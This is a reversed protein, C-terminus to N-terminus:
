ELLSESEEVRTTENLSSIGSSNRNEYSYDTNGDKHYELFSSTSLEKDFCGISSDIVSDESDEGENVNTEIQFSDNLNTVVQSRSRNTTDSEGDDTSENESEDRLENLNNELSESDLNLKGITEKASEIRDEHGFFTIPNENLLYKLNKPIILKENGVGFISIRNGPKVLESTLSVLSDQLSGKMNTSLKSQVCVINSLSFYLGHQQNESFGYSTSYPKEIKFTVLLTKMESYSLKLLVSLEALINFPSLVLCAVEGNILVKDLAQMFIEMLVNEEYSCIVLSTNDLSGQELKILMDQTSKYKVYMIKDTSHPFVSQDLQKLYKMLCKYDYNASGKINISAQSFKLLESDAVQSGYKSSIESFDRAKTINCCMKKLKSLTISAKLKTKFEKLQLEQNIVGKLGDELDQKSVLSMLRIYELGLNYKLRSRIENESPMLGKVEYLSIKEIFELILKPDCKNAVKLITEIQHKQFTNFSSLLQRSNKDSQIQDNSYLRNEVCLRLWDQNSLKTKYSETAYQHKTAIYNELPFDEEGEKFKYISVLVRDGIYKPGSKSREILQLAAISDKSSLAKVRVKDMNKKVDFEITAMHAPIYVAVNIVVKSPELQIRFEKELFTVNDTDVNDVDILSIDMWTFGLWANEAKVEFSDKEKLTKERRNAKFKKAERCSDTDDNNTTITSSSNKRKVHKPTEENGKEHNLAISGIKTMWNRSSEAVEINLQHFFEKKALLNNLKEIFQDESESILWASLKKGLAYGELVPILNQFPYTITNGIKDLFQICKEPESEEEILSASVLYQM